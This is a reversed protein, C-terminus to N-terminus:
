SVYRRKGYTPNPRFGPLSRLYRFHRRYEAYYSGAQEAMRIARDRNGRADERYCRAIFLRIAVRYRTVMDHHRWLEADLRPAPSPIEPAHLDLADGILTARARLAEGLYAVSAVSASGSRPRLRRCACM